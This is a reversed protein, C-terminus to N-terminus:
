SGVIQRFQDALTKGAICICFEVLAQKFTQHSNRYTTVM